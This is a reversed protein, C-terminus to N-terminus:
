VIRLIHGGEGRGEGETLSDTRDGRGRRPLPDGNSGLREGRASLRPSLYHPPVGSTAVTRMFLVASAPSSRARRPLKWASATRPRPWRSSGPTTRRPGTVTARLSPPS